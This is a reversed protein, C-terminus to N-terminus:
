DDIKAAGRSENLEGLSPHSELRQVNPAVAPTGPKRHGHRDGHCDSPVTSGSPACGLAVFSAVNRGATRIRTLRRSPYYLHYGTFPPSWNDLVQVLTGSVLLGEVRDRMGYAIGMGDLAARLAHEINTVVLPGDVQM